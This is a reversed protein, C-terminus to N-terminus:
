GMLKDEKRLRNAQSICKAFKVVVPAGLRVLTGTREAWDTQEARKAALGM